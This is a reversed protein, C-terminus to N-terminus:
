QILFNMKETKWKQNITVLGETIMENLLLDLENETVDIEGAKFYEMIQTKAEDDYVLSDLICEKKTM